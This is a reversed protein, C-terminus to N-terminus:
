DVQAQGARLSNIRNSITITSAYRLPKAGNGQNQNLSLEGLRDLRRDILHDRRLNGRHTVRADADALDRLVEGDVVM